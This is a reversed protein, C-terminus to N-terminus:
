KLVVKKGNQIYVGKQAKNVRQGQLNYVPSYDITLQGNDIAEVGTVEGGFVLDFGEKAAGVTEDKEIYAKFGGTRGGESKLKYF